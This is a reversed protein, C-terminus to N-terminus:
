NDIRSHSRVKCAECHRTTSKDGLPKGCQHCLGLERKLDNSKKKNVREMQWHKTCLSLYRQKTDSYHRPQPCWSCSGQEKYKTRTAKNSKEKRTNTSTFDELIIIATM